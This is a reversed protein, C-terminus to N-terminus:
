VKKEFYDLKDLPMTVSTCINGLHAAIRKFFRFVLALAVADKKGAATLMEWAIQDCEKESKYANTCTKLALKSDVNKFSIKTDDFWQLIDKQMVKLTEFYKGKEFGTFREAIEMINKSYDGLREADKVLSMLILCPLIDKSGHVTIHLVIDRRINQQLSNLQRDLKVLKKAEAHINDSQQFLNESAKKFMNKSIDLMEDFQNFIKKLTSNGKWFSILQKIIM